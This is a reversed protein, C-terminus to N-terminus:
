AGQIKEFLEREAQRRAMLGKMKVKRGGATAYVWKGFEGAAGDFDMDNVMRILRSNTFATEGVNFAFSVLASFQPQSLPVKVSNRVVIEFFCLDRKLIGCAESETIPGNFSEGHQIIHGYGITPKGSPCLYVNPQFSEHKKIIAVGAESTRM